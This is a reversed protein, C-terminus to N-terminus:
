CNVCDVGVCNFLPFFLEIDNKTKFKITSKKIMSINKVFRSTKAIIYKKLFQWIRITQLRLINLLMAFLGPSCTGESYHCITPKGHPM